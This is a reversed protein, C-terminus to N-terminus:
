EYVSVKKNDSFTKLYASLETKLDNYGEVVVVVVVVVTTCSIINVSLCNDIRMM